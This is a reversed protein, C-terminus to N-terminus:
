FYDQNFRFEDNIEGLLYDSMILLRSKNQNSKIYTVYGAPIHLVDLSNQNLDFSKIKLNKSPKEWNDIKILKITFDGEIASFWRQEVRHGQWARVPKYDSNTITYMRKVPSLDFDNNFKIEGREDLFNDGTILKPKSM